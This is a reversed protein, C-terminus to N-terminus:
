IILDLLLHSMSWSDLSLQGSPFPMCSVKTKSMLVLLLGLLALLLGLLALFLALLGLLLYSRSIPHYNM